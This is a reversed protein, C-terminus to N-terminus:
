IIVLPIFFLKFVAQLKKVVSFIMGFIETKMVLGALDVIGEGKIEARKRIMSHQKTSQYNLSLLKVNYWM